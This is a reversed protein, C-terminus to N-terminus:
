TFNHPLKIAGRKKHRFKIIGTVCVCRAECPLTNLIGTVASRRAFTGVYTISIMANNWLLPTINWLTGFYKLFHFMISGHYITTDPQLCHHTTPTFLDIYISIRIINWFPFIVIRRYSGGKESGKQEMRFNASETVTWNQGLLFM